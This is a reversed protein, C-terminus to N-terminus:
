HGWPLDMSAPDTQEQLVASQPLFGCELLEHLVSAQPLSECQLLEPLVTERLLSGASSLVSSEERLFFCHCFCCTIVLGWERNGQAALPFSTSFQSLTLSPLFSFYLFPTKLNTKSRLLQRQNQNATFEILKELNFRNKGHSYNILSRRKDKDWSM